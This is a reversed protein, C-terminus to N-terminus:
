RDGSAVASATQPISLRRRLPRRPALREPWPQHTAGTAFYLLLAARLPARPVHASPAVWWGQRTSSPDPCRDESPEPASPVARETRITRASAEVPEAR